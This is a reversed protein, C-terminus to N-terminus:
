LVPGLRKPHAYLRGGSYFAAIKDEELLTVQEPNKLEPVSAFHAAMISAVEVKGHGQLRSMTIPLLRRGGAAGLEVELYRVMIDARDVWLDAVTGAVKGDAAVVEWGRPDADKGDVSFGEAVRMPVILPAGTFTLEPVDARQAYSAPGVADTMPDGIPELPSGAFGGIRLALIERGDRADNPASYEGGHPLLFTKPAPMMVTGRPEIQKTTDSECPYGERRDERRLYFVLGFFFLWFVYLIVQAVDISQTISGSEM